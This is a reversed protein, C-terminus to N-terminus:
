GKNAWQHGFPRREKFVAMVGKDENKASSEVHQRVILQPGWDFSAGAERKVLQWCGEGNKGVPLCSVFFDMNQYCM